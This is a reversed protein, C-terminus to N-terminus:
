REEERYAKQVVDKVDLPLKIVALRLLNFMGDQNKEHEGKEM